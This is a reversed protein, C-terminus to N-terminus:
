PRGSAWAGPFFRVGFDLFRDVTILHSTPCVRGHLSMICPPAPCAPPQALLLSYLHSLSFPFIHSLFFSALDLYVQPQWCWRSGLTFQAFEFCDSLFLLLHLTVKQLRTTRGRLRRPLRQPAPLATSIPPSQKSDIM